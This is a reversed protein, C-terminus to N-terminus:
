ILITDKWNNEKKQRHRIKVQVADWEAGPDPHIVDAHRQARPLRVLEQAGRLEAALLTVRLPVRALHQMIDMVVEVGVKDEDNHNEGGDDRSDDKDSDDEGGVGAAARLRGRGWVFSAVYSFALIM